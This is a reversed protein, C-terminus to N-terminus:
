AKEEAAKRAAALANRAISGGDSHVASRPEAAQTIAYPLVPDAYWELAKELEASPKSALAAARRVIERPDCGM